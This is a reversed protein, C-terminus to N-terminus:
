KLILGSIETMCGSVEVIMETLQCPKLKGKRANRSVLLSKEIDIKMDFFSDPCHNRCYVYGLTDKYFMTGSCIPCLGWLKTVKRPNGM